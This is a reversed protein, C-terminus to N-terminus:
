QLCSNSDRIEMILLRCTCKTIILVTTSVDGASDKVPPTCVRSCTPVYLWKYIDYWGRLAYDYLSARLCRAMGDGYMRYGDLCRYEAQGYYETSNYTILERNETEPPEQCYNIPICSPEVESSYRWHARSPDNEDQICEATFNSLEKMM